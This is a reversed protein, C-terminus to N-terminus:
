LCSMSPLSVAPARVRIVTQLWRQDAAIRLYGGKQGVRSSIPERSPRICILNSHAHHDGAFAALDDGDRERRACGPEGTFTVPPRRGRLREVVGAPRGAAPRCAPVSKPREPPGHSTRHGGSGGAGALSRREPWRCPSRHRWRLCGALGLLRGGGRGGPRGGRELVEGDCAGVDPRREQLRGSLRERQACRASGRSGGPVCWLLARTRVVRSRTAHVSDLRSLGIRCATPM